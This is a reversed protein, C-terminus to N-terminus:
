LAWFGFMDHDASTRKPRAERDDLTAGPNRVGVGPSRGFRRLDAGSGPDATKGTQFSIGATASFQPAIRRKGCLRPPKEGARRPPM